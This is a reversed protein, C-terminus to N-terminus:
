FGRLDTSQRRPLGAKPTRKLVRYEIGHSECYAQKEPRDGDENVAYIDPRVAEIEPEADLWGNGTSILAQHVFRIAGAIFRREVAPFMPHGDGKLLRINNDHGVVVYLQGIQSVEEFFRVHGSHFFDYCGTVMVKKIGIERPEPDPRPADPLQELVAQPLIHCRLGHQQCFAARAASDDSDSVVWQEADGLADTPLVQGSPLDNVVQVTDVYRIADLMYLREALPYAVERGALQNTLEDSWLVVKVPGLQAAQQLLRLDRARFRDFPGSVVTFSM